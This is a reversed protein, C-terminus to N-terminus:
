KTTCSSPAIRPCSLVLINTGWYPDSTRANLSDWVVQVQERTLKTGVGADAMLNEPLNLHKQYGLAHVLEHALLRGPERKLRLWRKMSTDSTSSDIM